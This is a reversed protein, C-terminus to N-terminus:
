IHILSLRQTMLGDAGSLFAPSAETIEAIARGHVQEATVLPFDGPLCRGLTRQHHPELLGLSEEKSGRVDLGPTRTLFLSIVGPIRDLCPFTEVPTM